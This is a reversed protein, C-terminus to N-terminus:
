QCRLHDISLISIKIKVNSNNHAIICILGTAKEIARMKYVKKSLIM